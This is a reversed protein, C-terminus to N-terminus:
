GKQKTTGNEKQHMAELVRGPKMPLSRLRIGVADHIANSVSSMVSVLNTEGVGRIGLPHAPNPVEVIITDMMPVDLATPIRYDLFSSNMLGGQDNMYYEENLAWGIGQTIGGQMQGEVYAPHIARGVDQVLTDRLIDVKGTEPDVEVDVINTAFGNTGGRVMVSGTANVPGGTQAFKAAVEKFTLKLEPDAQSSFLGDTFEVEEAKIDWLRAAREVMQEVVSRSANYVAYGTASTTRSGVTPDTYGVTETDVVVPRVDEYPIGLMEAAIMAMAARSGGIDVSGEVLSVTGDPNVSMNASSRGGGGGWFGNAMGRGRLKGDPSRKELKSNWHESEKAAQLVEINGIRPWEPGDPRRGGEQSANLLRFELPDMGIQECLEDTLSEMAFAAHPSGPARYAAVKPKNVLVEYGDIRYSEMKYAAFVSLTGANVAIAGHYAGCAYKLEAQGALIKGHEDIGLKIRIKASPSPGSAEFVAKRDMIIKVPHGSKRSLLAAVPELYLATKGGFGGGIECPTVKVKSEPIALVDAIASRGRFAAQTSTWMNLRGDALWHATANHPEIYGQHVSDVAYEHEIVTSSAAFGAEVDGHEHRMHKAINTHPVMESLHNGVLEENLITADPAMADDVDLVPTLVEYEVEIKRVAEIATNSDLAAVAAVPHGKFMVRTHAMIRESAFRLDSLDEMMDVLKSEVEPMDAGTLVALVGPMPEAASTDVRKIRAHAHPSRLVAGFVMGPLKVDGGYIAQGTVKELGEPRIPRTGIVKYASAPKDAITM